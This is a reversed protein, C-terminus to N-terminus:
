GVHRQWSLTQAGFPAVVICPTRFFTKTYKKAAGPIQNSFVKQNFYAKRILEQDFLKCKPELRNSQFFREAFVKRFISEGIFRSAFILSIVWIPGRFDGLHKYFRTNIMMELRFPMGVERGMPSGSQDSQSGFPTWIPQEPCALIGFVRIFGTEYQHNKLGFRFIVELM